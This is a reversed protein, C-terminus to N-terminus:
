EGERELMYIDTVCAYKWSEYLYMDRHYMCMCLDINKSMKM